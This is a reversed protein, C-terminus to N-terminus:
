GQDSIRLARLSGGFHALLAQGRMSPSRRAWTMWRNLSAGRIRRFTRPRRRVTLPSRRMSQTEGDSNLYMAPEGFRAREPVGPARCPNARPRRETLTHLATPIEQSARTYASAAMHHRETKASAEKTTSAPRRGRACALGGSGVYTGPM